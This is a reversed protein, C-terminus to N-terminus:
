PQALFWTLFRQIGDEIPVQPRYGLLRRAKSIDAYTIKMDGPQEPMTRIRATKGLAAELL